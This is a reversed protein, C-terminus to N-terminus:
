HNFYPKLRALRAHVDAHIPPLELLKEIQEIREVASQLNVERNEKPLTDKVPMQDARWGDHQILFEATKLGESEGAIVKPWWISKAYGEGAVTLIWVLLSISVFVVVSFWLYYRRSHLRESLREGWIGALVQLLLAIMALSTFLPTMVNQIADRKAAFPNEGIYSYNLEPVNFGTLATFIGAGGVLITLLNVMTRDLAHNAKLRSVLHKM